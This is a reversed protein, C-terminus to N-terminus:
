FMRGGRSRKKGDRLKAIQVQEEGLELLDDAVVDVLDGMVVDSGGWLDVKGLEKEVTDAERQGPLNSRDGYNGFIGSIM